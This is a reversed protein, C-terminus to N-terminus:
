RALASTLLKFGVRGWYVRHYAILGNMLDFSEVVDLQEGKPGASPYEWILTNGESAVAPLRYWEGTGPGVLDFFARFHARLAPKGHLIGSPERELVLVATSDITADDHYLAMLADLDQTVIARHWKEHMSRHSENPPVTM